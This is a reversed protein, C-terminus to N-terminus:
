DRATTGSAAFVWLEVILCCPFIFAQHASSSLYSYRPSGSVLQQPRSVIRPLGLLVLCLLATLSACIVFRDFASDAWGAGAFAYSALFALASSVCILLM